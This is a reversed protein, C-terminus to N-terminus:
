LLSNENEEFQASHNYIGSGSHLWEGNSQSVAYMQINKNVLNSLTFFPPSSYLHSGNWIELISHTKHSIYVHVCSNLSVFLCPRLQPCVRVDHWERNTQRDKERERERERERWGKEKESDREAMRGMDGYTPKNGYSRPIKPCCRNQPFGKRLGLHNTWPVEPSCGAVIYNSFISYVYVCVM